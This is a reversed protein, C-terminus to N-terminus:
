FYFYINSRKDNIVDDLCNNFINLCIKLLINAIKLQMQADQTSKITLIEQFYYQIDAIIIELSDNILDM